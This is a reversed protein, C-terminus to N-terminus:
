GESASRTESRTEERLRPETRHEPRLGRKDAYFERITAMDAALDGSPVLTPGFGATRTPGDIFGLVIPLGTRDAIRYFGSKWYETRKRTGEAAVVLAFPEDARLQDVLHRVVGIPNRRDIPIGGVRRLFWGVPGRFLERKILVRPAAGFSAMVVLMLLFDWNSTHPAGVIVGSGPPEGIIHWGATRLARSALRRRIV